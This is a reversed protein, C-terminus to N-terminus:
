KPSFAALIYDKLEKHKTQQLAHFLVNPSVPIRSKRLIYLICDLQNKTYQKSNAFISNQRVALSLATDTSKFFLGEEEMRCNPDAGMILLSQVIAVDERMVALMLPTPSGPSGVNPDAGYKLLLYVVSRTIQPHETTYLKLAHILPTDGLCDAANSDYVHQSLYYELVDLTRFTIAYHLPSRGHEDLKLQHPFQQSQSCFSYMRGFEPNLTHVAAQIAHIHEM